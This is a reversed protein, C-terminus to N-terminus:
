KHLGLSDRFSALVRKLPEWTRFSAGVSIPRGSRNRPPNRTILAAANIVLQVIAVAVLTLTSPRMSPQLIQDYASYLLAMALMVFCAFRSHKIWSADDNHFRARDTKFAVIVILCAGFLAILVYPYTIWNDM